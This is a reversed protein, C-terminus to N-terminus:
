RRGFVDTQIIGRTDPTVLNFGNHFCVISPHGAPTQSEM